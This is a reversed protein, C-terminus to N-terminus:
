LRYKRKWPMLYSKIKRKKRMREQFEHHEAMAEAVTSEIPLGAAEAYARAIIETQRPEVVISRFMRMLRRRDTVGFSMRNLDVYYFRYGGDAESDEVFLINGPSFDMMLVGQKHLRAIERGLTRLLAEEDPRREVYRMETAEIQRSIYYSDRLLSGDRCEIYAIPEPTDFGLEMLRMANEYSRQAKSDRFTTYIYGNIPFPKHFAKINIEGATPDSFKVVMNRAKYIEVSGDPLGTHAIRNVLGELGPYRSNVTILYDM